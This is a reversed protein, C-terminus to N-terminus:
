YKIKVFRSSAIKNNGFLRIIYVGAELEGLEISEITYSTVKKRLVLRGHLDYIHIEKYNFIQETFDINLVNFTPNPYISVKENRVNSVITNLNAINFILNKFSSKENSDCITKGNIFLYKGSYWVSIYLEKDLYYLDSKIGYQENSKFYYVKDIEFSEDLYALYTSSLNEKYVIGYKDILSDFAILITLYNNGELEITNLISLPGSDSYQKANNVNGLKDIEVVFSCSKFKYPNQFTFDWLNIEKNRFEGFVLIRKDRTILIKSIYDEYGLNSSTSWLIKGESDLSGIMVWNRENGINRYVKDNYSVEFSSSKLAFYLNITDSDFSSISLAGDGKFAELYIISDLNSNFSGVFCDFSNFKYLKPIKFGLVELTDNFVASLFLNKNVCKILTKFNFAVSKIKLLKEFKLESNFKIIVLYNKLKTDQILSDNIFITDEKLFLCVFVEGNNSIDFNGSNFNGSIRSFAILNKSSDTKVIVLNSRPNLSTDINWHANIRNNNIYFSDSQPIESITFINKNKDIKYNFNSFYSSQTYVAEQAVCNLNLLFLFLNLIIINTNVKSCM